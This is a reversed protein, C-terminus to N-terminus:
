RLIEVSLDPNHRHISYTFRGKLDKTANRSLIVFFPAKKYERTASCM